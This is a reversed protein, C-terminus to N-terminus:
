TQWQLTINTLVYQTHNLLSGYLAVDEAEALTFSAMVKFSQLTNLLGVLLASISKDDEIDWHPIFSSHDVMGKVNSFLYKSLSKKSKKKKKKKALLKHKQGAM